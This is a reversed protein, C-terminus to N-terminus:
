NRVEEPTSTSVNYYIGDQFLEMRKDIVEREAILLMPSFMWSRIVYCNPNEGEELKKLVKLAKDWKLREEPNYMYKALEDLTVAEGGRILSRPVTYVNKVLFVDKSLISGSKRVHLVFNNQNYLLDYDNLILLNNVLEIVSKQTQINFFIIVFIIHEKEDSRILRDEFLILNDDKINKADKSSLKTLLEKNKNIKINEDIDIDIRYESIIDISRKKNKIRIREQLNIEYEDEEQNKKAACCKFIGLVAKM